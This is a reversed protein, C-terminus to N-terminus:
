IIHEGAEGRMRLSMFSFTFSTVWIVSHRQYSFNLQKSCKCDFSTTERIVHVIHFRESYSEWGLIGQVKSTQMFLECPSHSAFHKIWIKNPLLTGVDMRCKGAARTPVVIGPKSTATEWVQLMLVKTRDKEQLSCWEEPATAIFINLLNMKGNEREVQFPDMAINTFKAHSFM